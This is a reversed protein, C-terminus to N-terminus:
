REHNRSLIRNLVAPAVADPRSFDLQASEVSGYATQTNRRHLDTTPSLATYAREDRTSSFAAYMPNAM